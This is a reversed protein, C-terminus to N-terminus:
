RKKGDSGAGEKREAQQLNNTSSPSIVDQDTRVQELM